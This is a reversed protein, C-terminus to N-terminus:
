QTCFYPHKTVRKGVSPPSNRAYVVVREHTRPQSLCLIDQTKAAVITIRRIRVVVRRLADKCSVSLKLDAAVSRAVVNHKVTTM